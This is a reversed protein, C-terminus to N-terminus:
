LNTISQLLLSTPCYHGGACCIRTFLSENLREHPGTKGQSLVGAVTNIDYTTAALGSTLNRYFKYSIYIMMNDICSGLNLIEM